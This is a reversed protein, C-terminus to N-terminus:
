WTDGYQPLWMRYASCMGSVHHQYPEWAPICFTDGKIWEIVQDGITTQGSGDICHYVSSANERASVSSCGGELRECQAGIRLSVEEGAKGEEQSTYRIVAHVGPAAELKASMEVWPFHIPSRKADEAPYRPSSYHQAFHVPFHQFQPLDLGDLWIMPDAVGDNGHDQM